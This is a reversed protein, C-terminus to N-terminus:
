GESKATGSQKLFALADRDPYKQAFYLALEALDFAFGKGAQGRVKPFNPDFRKLNMFTTRSVGFRAFADKTSILEM